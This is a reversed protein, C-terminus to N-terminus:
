RYAIARAAMMPAVVFVFHVEFSSHGLAPVVAAVFLAAFFATVGSVWAFDVRREWATFPSEPDAWWLALLPHHNQCYYAWDELWGRPLLRWRSVLGLPDAFAALPSRGRDDDDHDDDGGGDDDSSSDTTNPPSKVGGTARPARLAPDCAENPLDAAHPDPEAVRRSRLTALGRGFYCKRRILMFQKLFRLREDRLLAVVV